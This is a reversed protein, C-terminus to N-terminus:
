YILVVINHLTYTGTEEPSVDFLIFWDDEAEIQPQVETALTISTQARRSELEQKRKEQERLRRKEEERVRMEQQRERDEQEKIRREETAM